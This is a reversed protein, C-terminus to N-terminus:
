LESECKKLFVVPICEPGSAKSLDLNTIVKKVLKPTVPIDILKLNTRLPFAPLSIYSEDLYYNKFFIKSFCNQKILHLFCCRLAMLYVPNSKVPRSEQNMVFNEVKVFLNKTIMLRKM